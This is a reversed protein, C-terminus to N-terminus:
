HDKPDYVRKMFDTGSKTLYCERAIYRDTTTFRTHGLFRSINDREIGARSMESAVYRRFGYATVHFGLERSIKKFFSQIGPTKWGDKSSMSIFLPKEFRASAERLGMYNKYSFVLFSPLEYYRLRGKQKRGNVILKWIGGEYLFSDVSLGLLECPRIGTFRFIDVLLINRARELATNHHRTAVHTVTREVQGHTLPTMDPPNERGKEILRINNEKIKFNKYLWAFYTNTNKIYTNRTSPKQKRQLQLDLLAQDLVGPTNFQEITILGTHRIITNLGDRVSKLTIPSKGLTLTKLVYEEWDYWIATENEPIEAELIEREEETLLHMLYEHTPFFRQRAQELYNAEM